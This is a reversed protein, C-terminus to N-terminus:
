THVGKGLTGIGLRQQVGPPRHLSIEGQEGLRLFEQLPPRDRSPALHTDGATNCVFIDFTTVNRPIPYIEVCCLIRAHFTKAVRNAGWRAVPDPHQLRHGPWRCALCSLMIKAGETPLASPSTFQGIAEQAVCFRHIPSCTEFFALPDDNIVIQKATAERIYGTDEHSQYFVFACPPNGLGIM